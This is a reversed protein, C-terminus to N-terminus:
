ANIKTKTADNGIVHTGGKGVGDVIISCKSELRYNEIFDKVYKLTDENYRIAKDDGKYPKNQNINKDWKNKYIQKM